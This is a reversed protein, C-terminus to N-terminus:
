TLNHEICLAQYKKIAGLVDLAEDYAIEVWEPSEGFEATTIAEIIIKRSEITM